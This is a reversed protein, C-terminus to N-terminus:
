GEYPTTPNTRGLFKKITAGFTIILYNLGERSYPRKFSITHKADLLKSFRVRARSFLACVRSFFFM